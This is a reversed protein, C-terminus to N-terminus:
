AARKLIEPQWKKKEQRLMEAGIKKLNYACIGLSIYRKYNKLGRDPCRDLGRCELENINSEVASHKNKLKKFSPSQEEDQEQKNRKGLKPMIVKPVELQLLAKNEKRWYGKDFSWSAVKYKTLIRDAVKIVVDRDQENDMIEADVILNYQDTTISVKKGLEVNPRSKGKKIWETYTEFISFLKEEHPILEGKIIRREVLDIHKGLLATYYELCIALSLDKMDNLPLLPLEKGLKAHLASAKTIYTAAAQKVRQEKGKGGSSSAKGLERMFGKLDAQWNKIKRWGEIDEYKDLFKYIVDTCKRACDWLLNYDTPFHVNSEVVFSDTKLRLAEEEKKKFVESHGFDVIIENIEKLMEDTLLTVNDYIRQYSFEAREYGFEREVGMLWRISLHNNALNHIWEYSTNLCMRVQGLVFISWLDLGKKGTQKKTEVLYKELVRFLKQNYEPNCYLAKLAIILEELKGQKKGGVPLETIPRQGLSLQQEFRKRMNSDKQPTTNFYM